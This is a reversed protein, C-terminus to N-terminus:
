SIISTLPLTHMFFLLASLSMVLIQSDFRRVHPVHLLSARVLKGVM